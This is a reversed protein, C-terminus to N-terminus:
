RFVIKNAQFKVYGPCRCPTLDMFRTFTEFTEYIHMFLMMFSATINSETKSEALLATPVEKKAFSLIKVLGYGPLFYVSVSASISVSVLM